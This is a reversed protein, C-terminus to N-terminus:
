LGPKNNKVCKRRILCYSNFEYTVRFNKGFVDQISKLISPSDCIDCFIMSELQELNERNKALLQFHYKTFPWQENLSKFTLSRARKLYPIILSLNQYDINKILCDFRLVGSRNISMFKSEFHSLTGFMHSVWDHITQFPKNNIIHIAVASRQYGQLNCLRRERDTLDGVSVSSFDWDLLLPYALSAANMMTISIKRLYFNDKQAARCSLQLSLIDQPALLDGIKKWLELPLSEFIKPENKLISTDRTIPEMALSFQTLIILAALRKM